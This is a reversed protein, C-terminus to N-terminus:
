IGTQNSQSQTKLLKKAVEIISRSASSAPYALIFPQQDTVAQLVKPDRLIFGGYNVDVNLFQNAVANIKHWTLEGERPSSVKNTVITIKPFENNSVITKVLGYADAISPPEPTAIVLMEDVALLFSIVNRSLGASTDILIFDYMQDFETLSTLLRRVDVPNVNALEALGSGGSIIGLGSPGEMVIEHLKKEGKLVHWINYEPYMGLVIDANALGLDGDLIAVRKNLSILALALNITVNTKGVGGKGSTIAIVRPLIKQKQRVIKRLEWAQDNM